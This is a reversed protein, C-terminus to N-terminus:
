QASAHSRSRRVQLQLPGNPIRFGDPIRLVASYFEDEDHFAAVELPLDAVMDDLRERSPLEHPVM